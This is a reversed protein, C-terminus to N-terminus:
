RVTFTTVMGYAYHNEINCIAVYNGPELTVTFEQSTGPLVDEVEGMAELADEDVEVGDATMPLQDAPLDTRFVVFEHTTAGVNNVVFTTAGAALESTGPTLSYETAIVDVRQICATTSAVASGSAAPVPSPCPLYSPVAAAPSAAPMGSAMPAPSQAAAGGSAAVAAAWLVAGGVGSLAVRSIAPRM